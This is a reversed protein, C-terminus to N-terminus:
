DEPLGDLLTDAFEASMKDDRQATAACIRAVQADLIERRRKRAERVSAEVMFATRNESVEDILKLADDPVLMSIRPM